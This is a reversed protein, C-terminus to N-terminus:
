PKRTAAYLRAGAVIRDILVGERYSRLLRHGAHGLSDRTARPLARVLPRQDDYTPLAIIDLQRSRKPDGLWKAEAPVKRVEHAEGRLKVVTTRRLDAFAERIRTYAARGGDTDIRLALVDSRFPSSEGDLAEALRELDQAEQEIEDLWQKWAQKADVTM